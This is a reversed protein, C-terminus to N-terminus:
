PALPSISRTAQHVDDGDEEVGQPGGEAGVGRDEGQQGDAEVHVEAVGAEGVEALHPEHHDAGVAGGDEDGGPAAAEPEGDGEAQDTRRHEGQQQAYGGQPQPGVVEGDGRDRRRLDDPEQDPRPRGGVEGAAREPQLAHTSAEAVEIGVGVGPVDPPAVEVEAVLVEPQHGHRPDQHDDAREEDGPEGAGGQPRTSFDSGRPRPRRGCGRCSRPRSCSAPGRARRPDDTPEGAHDVHEVRTARHGLPELGLGREEGVGCQDQAARGGPDPRHDAGHQEPEQPDAHLAEDAVDRAAVPRGVEEGSKRVPLSPSMAIVQM